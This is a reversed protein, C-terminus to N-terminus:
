DGSIQKINFPFFGILPCQNVGFGRTVDRWGNLLTIYRCHRYIPYQYSGTYTYQFRLAPQGYVHLLVLPGGIILGLKLLTGLPSGRLKHEAMPATTKSPKRFFPFNLRM